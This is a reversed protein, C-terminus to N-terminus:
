ADQSSSKCVFDRDGPDKAAYGDKYLAIQALVQNCFSGDMIRSPHGTALALNM